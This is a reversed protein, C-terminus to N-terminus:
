DRRAPSASSFSASAAHTPMPPSYATPLKYEASPFYAAGGVLCPRALATPSSCLNFHLRGM